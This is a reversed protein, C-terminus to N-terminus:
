AGGGQAAASPADTCEAQSSWRAMAAEPALSPDLFDLAIREFLAHRRADAIGGDFHGYRTVFRWKLGPDAGLANFVAAAAPAPVVDDRAALKCLAPCGVRRAHIAADLCRLNAVIRTAIAAHDRLYRLVEAGAGAGDPRHHALRWPWDGMSPLGIAMRAIPEREALVSAGVVALGAGLSLAHVFIPHALRGDAPRSGSALFTRLARCATVADAVAGAFSWDVDVPTEAPGAALAHTIWGPGSRPLAADLRSGPYGRVRVILVALGRAAAVQWRAAEDALPPPDHFGHLVVLGARPAGSPPLVLACGVRIERTSVIRHTASPDSPDEQGAVIRSLRPELALVPQAWAKWFAGHHPSRTPDGVHALTRVASLGFDDPLNM